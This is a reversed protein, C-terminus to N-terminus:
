LKARGRELIKVIAREGEAVGSFAQEIRDVRLQLTERSEMDHPAPKLGSKKQSMSM